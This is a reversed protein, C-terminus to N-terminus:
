VPAVEELFGEWVLQLRTQPDRGSRRYSDHYEIVSLETCM